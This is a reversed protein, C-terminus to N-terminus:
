TVLVPFIVLFYRSALRVGWFIASNAQQLCQRCFQPLNVHQSEKGKLREGSILHLQQLMHATCVRCVVNDNQASVDWLFKREAKKENLPSIRGGGFDCFNGQLNFIQRQLPPSSLQIYFCRSMHLQLHQHRYHRSNLLVSVLRAEAEAGAETAAWGRVTTALLLLQIIWWPAPWIDLCNQLWPELWQGDLIEELPM